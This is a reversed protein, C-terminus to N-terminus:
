RAYHEVVDDEEVELRGAAARMAVADDVDAQDFNAAAREDPFPRREDIGAPTDRVADLVQGADGVFHERFRRREFREGRREGLAESAFDERSVVRAEIVREQPM